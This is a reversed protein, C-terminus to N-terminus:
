LVYLGIKYFVCVYKMYVNHITNIFARFFLDQLCVDIQYRQSEWPSPLSSPNSFAHTMIVPIIPAIMQSLNPHWSLCKLLLWKYLIQLCIRVLWTFFSLLDNSTSSVFWICPSTKPPNSAIWFSKLVSSHSFSQNFAQDFTVTYPVIMGLNTAQVKTVM